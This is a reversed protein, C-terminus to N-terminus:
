GLKEIMEGAAAAGDGVATTVQRVQKKRVDGAAYVLPLGLNGTEDTLLYGTEDTPFQGKM